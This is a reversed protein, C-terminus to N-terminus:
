RNFPLQEVCQRGARVESGRDANASTGDGLEELQCDCLLEGDDHRKCISSIPSQYSALAM